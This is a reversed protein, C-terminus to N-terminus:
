IDQPILYRIAAWIKAVDKEANGAEIESDLLQRRAELIASLNSKGAQFQAEMLTVKQHQLPLIEDTQRKWRAYAANYEAVLTHIQATHDRMLLTIQDNAAMMRALDAEHDKDQRHSQLIPLGVTFMIGAMDEYGNRKAYYLEVGVDPIAAVASQASRAKAVDATRNAEIIEPHHSVGYALTRENSPLHNFSPLAGAISDIDKGTLEALRAKAILMDREANTVKDQMASLTIKIDLVDSALTRGTAVGVKQLDIQKTTEAVLNEASKLIKESLALDLWAQAAERQIRGRIVDNDSETQRAQALFSDSQRARKKRSIYDQMFGVREMTMENRTFRGNNPGEVPVNDIGFRLKPDPLQMASDAQNHLAHIEHNNASLAASYKEAFALTQDLSYETAFASTATFFFTGIGYTLAM